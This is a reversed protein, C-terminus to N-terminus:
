SSAAMVATTRPPVETKPPLPVTQPVISPRNEMETSCFPRRSAASGDSSVPTSVPTTSTSDIASPRRRVDGGSDVLRSSVGGMLFECSAMRQATIRAPDSITAPVLAQSTCESAGAPPPGAAAAAFVACRGTIAM